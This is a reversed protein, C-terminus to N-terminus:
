KYIGIIYIKCIYVFIHMHVCITDRDIYNTFILKHHSIESESQALATLEAKLNDGKTM